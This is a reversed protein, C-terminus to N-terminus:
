AALPRDKKGNTHVFLPAYRPQLCASALPIATACFACEASTRGIIWHTRGCGPCHNIQQERYVAHYGRSTWDFMGAARSQPKNSGRDRDMRASEAESALAEFESAIRALMAIDRGTRLEKTLSRCKRAENRLNVPDLNIM